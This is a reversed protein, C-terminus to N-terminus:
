ENSETATSEQPLIEPPLVKKEVKAPPPTLLWDDPRLTPSPSTKPKAPAEIPLSKPRPFSSPPIDALTARMFRAWLPACLAGGTTGGVMKSNNDNGVWITACLDPTFGIFWADRHDSTTGTKGAAPRGFYAAAGTGRTVVGQMCDVLVRLPEEPFVRRPKPKNIEIIRGARDEIKTVLIPETRMGDAAFVCYASTLDLPTVESTGLALSLNPSLKSTIGLRHATEIVKEVGVQQILKVAIVNNSKELARRVSISGYYDHDYNQPTWWEGNGAPYSVPADNVVKSPSIGESFATLYVFPKFASGPQRLAQTIRNFKSTGYDIGGILTRVYGTKPEISVMAGQTINIHKNDKIMRTLMKEALEQASLDLTSFVRLGGRMVQDAGFRETLRQLLYSTFYPARYVHNQQGPYTLATKVATEVEPPSIFNQRSMLQLVLKQRRKALNPNHYPSYMEPGKLLGALLASEPLTLKTASKGFYTQAAAEIGFSNHGWFVQNLYLELIQSKNFRHEIQIALWADALKRPLTRSPSLFLSKALQQTLTSGGQFHDGESLNILLARFIGRPDIGRHHFFREDEIAIVAQQVSQPIDRLPVVIRNEEGHVNAILRGRCDFIKTTEFPVYSQLSGVDPLRALSFILGSAAGLSGVALMSSAFSLVTWYWPQRPANKKYRAAERRSVASPPQPKPALTERKFENSM